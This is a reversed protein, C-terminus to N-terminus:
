PLHDISDCILPDRVRNPVTAMAKIRGAETQLHLSGTSGQPARALAKFHEIHARLCRLVKEPLPPRGDKDAPLPGRPHYMARDAAEQARKRRLRPAHPRKRERERTKKKKAV